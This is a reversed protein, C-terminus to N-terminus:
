FFRCSDVRSHWGNIFRAQSPNAKVINNYYQKRALKYDDVINGSYKTIAELTKPGIIGDCFKFDLIAQLLQIAKKPGANVGMDFLQLKLEDSQINNLNMPVWYDKHYIESAQEITLNKIDLNPYQRKCVGYKTEGGADLKDNVYGGEHRLIVDLYDEFIKM